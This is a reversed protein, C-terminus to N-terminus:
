FTLRVSSLLFVNTKTKASAEIFFWKYKDALEQATARQVQRDEEMDCKNGSINLIQLDFSTLLISMGVLVVPHNEDETIDSLKERLGTMEQFSADNTISYM